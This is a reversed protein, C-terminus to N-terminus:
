IKEGRKETIKVSVSEADGNIPPCLKSVSVTVESVRKEENLVRTCIKKVVGELLKRPVGMEEKLVNNLFVYDVADELNDTLHSKGLETKVSLNVLYESGILAEEKLCGHYSYFRVNKLKIEVM